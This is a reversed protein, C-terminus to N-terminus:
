IRPEGVIFKSENAVYQLMHTSMLRTTRLTLPRLLHRLLPSPRETFNKTYYATSPYFASQSFSYASSVHILRRRRTGKLTGWKNISFITDYKSMESTYQILILSVKRIRDLAELPGDM